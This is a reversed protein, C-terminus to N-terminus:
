PKKLVFETTALARGNILVEVKHAGPYHKRTTFDQIRQKKTFEVSENKVLSIEKWKFVKRSSGGSNKVFHIGLDVVLRQTSKATSKFRLAFNVAEGLRVRKPQVDFAIVKVSAKGTAGILELAGPHGKKILTRLAHRMTWRSEPTNLTQNRFWAILWEPHDKSIDNLHNAVSKRVYLSPDHLLKRLIPVTLEPNKIVPDLRFSWPLRPRSGESALRRVHENSDDAWILMAALTVDFHARLFERIAFEASGFSTFFRLADLSPELHDRGYLGVFDPLVLSSFSHNIKPAFKRLLALTTLYDTPLTERIAESTRRLRQLLSRESLGTLTLNLFRKRDFSPHVSALGDAFGRYRAENFIEKLASPENSEPM